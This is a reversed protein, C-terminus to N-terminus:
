NSTSLQLETKAFNSRGILQTGTMWLKRITGADGSQKGKRTIQMRSYVTPYSEVCDATRQLAIALKQSAVARQSRGLLALLKTPLM